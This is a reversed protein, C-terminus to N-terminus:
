EKWKVLKARDEALGVCLGGTVILSGSFVLPIIKDTTMADAIGLAGIGLGLMTLGSSRLKDQTRSDNSKYVIMESIGILTLGVGEVILLPASAGRVNNQLSPLVVPLTFFGGLLMTWFGAQYVKNADADAPAFSM